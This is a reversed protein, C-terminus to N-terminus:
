AGAAAAVGLSLCATVGAGTVLPLAAPVGKRGGAGGARSDWELAVDTTLSDLAEPVGTLSLGVVSKLSRFFTSNLM